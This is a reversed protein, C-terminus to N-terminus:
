LTAIAIEDPFPRATRQRRFRSRGGTMASGFPDVRKPALSQRGGQGPGHERVRHMPSAVLCTADSSPDVRRAAAMAQGALKAKRARLPPMGMGGGVADSRRYSAALQLFHGVPGVSVGRNFGM